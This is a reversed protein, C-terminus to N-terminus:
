YTAATWVPTRGEGLDGIEKSELDIVHLSTLNEDIRDSQFVLMQGDPSWAPASDSFADETVVSVAGIDVTVIYLNGGASFAIRDGSPSWRPGDHSATVTTALRTVGGTATDVVYTSFPFLETEDRNSQLALTSGDPSYTGAVNLRGPNSTLQQPPGGAVSQAFLEFGLSFNGRQFVVEDGNPAWSPRHDELDGTSLRRIDGNAIEYSYIQPRDTHDGRRSNFTLHTGAPHWFPARDPGPNDTIRRVDTGDANMLCLEDNDGDDFECVFAITGVLGSVDPLRPTGNHDSCATLVSLSAVVGPLVFRIATAASSLM